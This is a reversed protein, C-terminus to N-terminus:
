DYIKKSDKAIRSPKKNRKQKTESRSLREIEFKIKEAIMERESSRINERELDFLADRYHDVARERAGKFAAREAQEIWHSVKIMATFEALAVKSDQLDAEDPYFQLASDIVSLAKQATEIKDNITILNKAELTMTRTEIAAWELLHYRHLQGIIERGRRLAAVRPSGTRVTKLEYANLTLYENCMEFVGLHGESMKGLVRVAESKQRIDEIVAANKQLTLKPGARNMKEPLALNGVNEDLQKRSLLYNNRARRLVVERLFVASGLVCSAGIGAVVWPMEENGEHLVGWVLFFLAGAGALTLVYYNSAPLWFPRPYKTAM